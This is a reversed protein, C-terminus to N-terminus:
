LIKNLVNRLREVGAEFSFISNYYSQIDQRDFHAMKIKDLGDKFSKKDGYSFLYGKEKFEDYGRASVKHTLVPLGHSLGDMIRLKLGGGLETPCIYFDACDLIEDMSEPNPIVKVNSDRSVMKRLKEGPNRGAIMLESDPFYERFIPFYETMWHYLSEYTQYSNLSGTIAFVPSDNTEHQKITHENEKYEFVGLKAFKAKGNDYHNKLLDIDQNTLTLNLDAKCVAGREYRKCWYLTPISLPFKTNDKFYEYQYNHHIVITKSGQRKFYDILGFSVLSTDFVVLDFKKNGIRKRINTYRHVRGILLDLLKFIKQKDYAVPIQKVKPNIYQSEMGEMYPYLLTMHDFLSAFANIYARSAFCGGGNGHLYHHTIFLVKSQTNM